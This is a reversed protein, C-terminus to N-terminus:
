ILRVGVIAGENIYEKIDKDSYNLEKMIEETHGGQPKCGELRSEPMSAFLVPNTPIM